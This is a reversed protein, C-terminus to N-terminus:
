GGRIATAHLSFWNVALETPCSIADSQCPDPDGCGGHVTAPLLGSGREAGSVDPRSGTCQYPARCRKSELFGRCVYLWVLALDCVGM